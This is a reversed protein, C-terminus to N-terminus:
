DDSLSSPADEPMTAKIRGFLSGLPYGNWGRLFVDGKLAQGIRGSLDAGHCSGCKSDYQAKGRTAQAATYVGDWVSRSDTTVVQTQTEIVGATFESAMTVIVIVTLVFFVALSVRM